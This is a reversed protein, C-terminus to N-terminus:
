KIERLFEGRESVPIVQYVGYTQGIRDYEEVSVDLDKEAYPVALWILGRLNVEEDSMIFDAKGQALADAADEIGFAALKKRYLPSKCMWGGVIDYNAPANDRCELLKGSFAVTSYVDEFYFTDPHARCYADIAEWDRNIEQRRAQDAQVAPVTKILSVTSLLFLAAATGCVLSRVGASGAFHFSAEAREPVSLATGRVIQRLFMGTLLCFEALYLSHTIREPDRGRMLIFMWLASRVLFILLLWVGASLWNRWRLGSEGKRFCMTRRLFKKGSGGEGRSECVDGSLIIVASIINIVYSLFVLLNYPADGGHTSRYRYLFLSEKFITGWDRAAGVREKAYVAIDSFLRTDIEEDLGFNYNRLLVRDAYSVGLSELEAGYADDTVVEHYFDYITTRDDFLQRFEKWEGDYALADAGLLLGMGALLLLLLGGYKKLNEGTFVPRDEWWCFVGALGLFPLLLLAMESRLLFALLFLLLPPTNSILFGKASSTKSAIGTIIVPLTGQSTLFLFIATGALMACTITYQVNVMHTLWIGWQFIALILLCFLKGAFCWRTEAGGIGSEASDDGMQARRQMLPLDALACLRVGVAFFCGFQCLFLFAGYWPFSGSIRYCLAILAGLPYLTQVNHGDPAGSYIGSMIDRMMTDDNLDFYFDFCIGMLVASIGIILLPLIWNQYERIKKSM